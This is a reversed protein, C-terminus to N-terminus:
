VEIPVGNAVGVAGGVSVIFLPAFTALTVSAAPPGYYTGGQGTWGCPDGGGLEALGVIGAAEGSCVM